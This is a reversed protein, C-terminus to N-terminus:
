AQMACMTVHNSALLASSSRAVNNAVDWFYVSQWTWFQYLDPNLSVLHARGSASPRGRGSEPLEAARLGAIAVPGYEVLISDAISRDPM